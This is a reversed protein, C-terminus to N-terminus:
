FKNEESIPRVVNFTKLLLYTPSSPPVFGIIAIATYRDAQRHGAWRSNVLYNGNLDSEDGAPKIVIRQRPFIYSPALDYPVAPGFPGM